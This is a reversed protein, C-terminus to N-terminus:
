IFRGGKKEPVLGKAKALRRYRYAASVSMGLRAALQEPKEGNELGIAAEIVFNEHTQLRTAGTPYSYGVRDLERTVPYFDSGPNANRIRNMTSRMAEINKGFYEALQKLTYNKKCLELLENLMSPTWVRANLGAKIFRSANATVVKIDEDAESEITGPMLEDIHGEVSNSAGTDCEEPRREAEKDKPIPIIKQDPIHGGVTECEEPRREVEKDKLIIEQDPQLIILRLKGDIVDRIKALCDPCFYFNDDKLTANPTAETVRVDRNCADCYVVYETRIKRM